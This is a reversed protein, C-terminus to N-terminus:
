VNCQCTTFSESFPLICGISMNEIVYRPNDYIANSLLCLPIIKLFNEHFIWLELSLIKSHDNDNISSFKQM